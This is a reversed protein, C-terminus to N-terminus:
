LAISVPADFLTGDFKLLTVGFELLLRVSGRKSARGKKLTWHAEKEPVDRKTKGTRPTKFSLSGLV